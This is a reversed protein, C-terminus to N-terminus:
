RLNCHPSCPDSGCSECAGERRRKAKLKEEPSLVASPKKNEMVLEPREEFVREGTTPDIEGSDLDRGENFKNNENRWFEMNM